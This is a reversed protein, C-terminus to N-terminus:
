WGEMSCLVSLPYSDASCVLRAPTLPHSALEEASDVVEGLWPLLIPLVSICSAIKVIHKRFGLGLGPRCVGRQM